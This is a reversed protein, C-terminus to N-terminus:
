AGCTITAKFLIPIGKHIYHLGALMRVTVGSSGIGSTFWHYLYM